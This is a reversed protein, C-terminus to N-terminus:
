TRATSTTQALPRRWARSLDAGCETCAISSGFPSGCVGCRRQLERWRRRTEWPGRIALWILGGYFITNILMGAVIPGVPVRRGANVGLWKIGNKAQWMQFFQDCSPDGCLLGFGGLCSFPWGARFEVVWQLRKIARNSQDPQDEVPIYRGTARLQLGFSQQLAGAEPAAHWDPPAYQRWLSDVAADTLTTAPRDAAPSWVACGLAVAINVVAGFAVCIMLLAFRWRSM